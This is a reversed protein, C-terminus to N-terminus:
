NECRYNENYERGILLQQKHPYMREEFIVIKKM